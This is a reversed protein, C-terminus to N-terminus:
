LNCQKKFDWKESKYKVYSLGRLRDYTMEVHEVSSDHIKNYLRM